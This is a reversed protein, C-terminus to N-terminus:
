FPAIWLLKKCKRSASCKSASPKASFIVWHKSLHPRFYLCYRTPWPYSPAAIILPLWERSHWSSYLSDCFVNEINLAMSMTYVLDKYIYHFWYWLCCIEKRQEPSQLHGNLYGLHKFVPKFYLDFHKPPTGLFSWFNLSVRCALLYKTQLFITSRTAATIRTSSSIELSSLGSLATSERPKSGWISM